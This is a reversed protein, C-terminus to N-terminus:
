KNIKKKEVNYEFLNEIGKEDFQIENKETTFEFKMGHM